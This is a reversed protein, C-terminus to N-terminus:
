DWIQEFCEIKFTKQQWWLKGHFTGKQQLTNKAFIKIYNKKNEGRLLTTKKKTSIEAVQMSAVKKEHEQADPNSTKKVQNQTKIVKIELINKSNILIDETLCEQTIKQEKPLCPSDLRCRYKTLDQASSPQSTAINLLLSFFITYFIHLQNKSIM